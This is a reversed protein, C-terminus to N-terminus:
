EVEGTWELIGGALNYLNEHGHAAMIQCAQASRNGSRCYVLYTDKEGLAEVQDIFNSDQININVSGPIHGAQYEEPTRVDLIVPDKHESLKAQFNESQINQFM